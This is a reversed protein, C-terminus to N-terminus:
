RKKTKAIMWFGPHDPCLEPAFMLGERRCGPFTCVHLQEACGSRTAPHPDYLNAGSQVEDGRETKAFSNRKATFQASAAPYVSCLTLATQASGGFGSMQEPLRESSGPCSQQPVEM